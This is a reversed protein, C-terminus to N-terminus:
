GCECLFAPMCVCMGIKTLFLMELKRIDMVQLSFKLGHKVNLREKKLSEPTRTSPYMTRFLVQVSIPLWSEFPCGFTLSVGIISLQM